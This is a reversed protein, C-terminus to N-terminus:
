RRRRLHHAPPPPDYLEWTAAPAEPAAAPEADPGAMLDDLSAPEGASAESADAERREPEAVPLGLAERLPGEDDADILNGVKVETGDNLVFRLNDMFGTVEVEAVDERALRVRWGEDDLQRRMGALVRWPTVVVVDLPPFVKAVAVAALLEEGDDLRARVEDVVVGPAGSLRRSVYPRAEPM